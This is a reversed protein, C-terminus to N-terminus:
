TCMYIFVNRYVQFASVSHRRAYHFAPLYSCWAHPGVELPAAGGARVAPGGPPLPWRRRRPGSGGLSLLRPLRPPSRESARARLSPARYHVDPRKLGSIPCVLADSLRNTIGYKYPHKLRSSLISKSDSQLTYLPAQCELRLEPSARPLWAVRAEHIALHVM